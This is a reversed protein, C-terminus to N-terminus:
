LVSCTSVFYQLHSEVTSASLKTAFPTPSFITFHCLKQTSQAINPCHIVRQTGEVHLGKGLKMQKAETKIHAQKEIASSHVKRTRTLWRSECGICIKKTAPPLDCFELVSAAFTGQLEDCHRSWWARQLNVTAKHSATAPKKKQFGGKKPRGRGKGEVQCLGTARKGGLHCQCQCDTAKDAM